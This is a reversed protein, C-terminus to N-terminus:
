INIGDNTENVNVKSRNIKKINKEKNVRKHEHGDLRTHTHTQYKSIIEMGFLSIRKTPTITWFAGNQTHKATGLAHNPHKSSQNNMM